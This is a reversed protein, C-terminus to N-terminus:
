RKMPRTSTSKGLQYIRTELDADLFRSRSAPEHQAEAAGIPAWAAVFSVILLSTLRKM